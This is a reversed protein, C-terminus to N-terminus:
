KHKLVSGSFGKMMKWSELYKDRVKQIKTWEDDICCIGAAERAIALAPVGLDEHLLTAGLMDSAPDAIRWSGSEVEVQPGTIRRGHGYTGGGGVFYAGCNIWAEACAVWMVFNICAM